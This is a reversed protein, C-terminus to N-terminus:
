PEAIEGIFAGSPSAACPNPECAGAGLNTGHLADCARATLRECEPPEAGGGDHGGDERDDGGEPHHDEEEAIPGERRRRIWQRRSVAAASAYSSGLVVETRPPRLGDDPAPDV